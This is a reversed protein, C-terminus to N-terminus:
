RTQNGDWIQEQPYKLQYPEVNMFVHFGSANM